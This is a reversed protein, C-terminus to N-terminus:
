EFYITQTCRWNGYGSQWAFWTYHKWMVEYVVVIEIKEIMSPDTNDLGELLSLTDGKSMGDMFNTKAVTNVSKGTKLYVTVYCAGKGINDKFDITKNVDVDPIEGLYSDNTVFYSYFNWWGMDSGIDRPLANPDQLLNLTVNFKDKEKIFYKGDSETCGSLTLNFMHFKSHLKNVGDGGNVSPDYGNDLKCSEEKLSVTIRSTPTIDDTVIKGYKSIPENPVYQKLLTEIDPCNFTLTDYRELDFKGNQSYEFGYGPTGVIKEINNCFTVKNEKYNYVICAYVEVDGILIWRYHGKECNTDFHASVSTSSTQTKSATNTLSQSVTEENSCSMGSTIAYGLEVSGKLFGADASISEKETMEVSTTWETAKKSANSIAKQISDTTSQSYSFEFTFDVTGNYVVSANAGLDSNLQLPVNELDGLYWIWYYNNDDYGSISPLEGNTNAQAPSALYMTPIHQYVEVTGEPYGKITTGGSDAPSIQKNKSNCSACASIVFILALLAAIIKKM